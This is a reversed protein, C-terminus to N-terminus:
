NGRGPAFGPAYAGDSNPNGSSYSHDMEVRDHITRLRMYYYFQKNYTSSKKDRDQRKIYKVDPVPKENKKFENEVIRRLARGMATVNDKIGGKELATKVETFVVRDQSDMTIELVALYQEDGLGTMMDEKCQIMSPLPVIPAPRFNDLVIHIMADTYKKERIWQEIEPKAVKKNANFPDDAKDKPSVFENPLEFLHCRDFSDIPCFEPVDNMLFFGTGTSYYPRQNMYLGRAVVGEKMSQFTKIKSGDIKVKAHHSTSPPLESMKIIRALEADIMYGNQRFADGSNGDTVAFVGSPITRVYSGFANDMLQFLVSKGSNRPGHLIYTIKDMCGAMARALATLFLEMLGAEANEFMPKIIEEYVVTIDEEVREPFSSNVRCFTNFYGGKMFHGYTGGSETDDFQYYGDKFAVKGVGGLVVDQAFDDTTPDQLLGRLTSVTKLMESNMSTFPVIKEEETKPNVIIKRIDLDMTVRQLHLKVSEKDRSWIGDRLTYEQRNDRVYTNGLALEVIKAAKLDTCDYLTIPRPFKTTDLELSETTPKIHLSVDLATAKKIRGEIERLVPERLPHTPFVMVGDHIWSIEKDWLGMDRGAQDMARLIKGEYRQYLLSLFIGTTNNCYSKRNGERDRKKEAAEFKDRKEENRESAMTRLDSHEEFMSVRGKHLEQHIEHVWEPLGEVGKGYGFLMWNKVMKTQAGTFGTERLHDMSPEYNNIFFTIFSTDCGAQDYLQKLVTPAANVVDIDQVHPACIWNRARKEMRQLSLGRYNETSAHYRGYKDVVYDIPVKSVGAITTPLAADAYSSFAEGWIRTEPTSASFHSLYRLRNTNVLDFRTILQTSM